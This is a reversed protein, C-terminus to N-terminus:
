GYWYITFVMVDGMTQYKHSPLCINTSVRIKLCTTVHFRIPPTWYRSLINQKRRSPLIKRGELLSNAHETLINIGTLWEVNCFFWINPSTGSTKWKKKEEGFHGSQSHPGGLTRNLPYQPEKEQTFHCPCSTPREGGDLVLSFLSHLRVETRTNAKM